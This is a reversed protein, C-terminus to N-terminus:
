FSSFYLQSFCAPPCPSCDESDPSLLRVKPHFANKSHKLSVKGSAASCIFLVHFSEAWLVSFRPRFRLDLM